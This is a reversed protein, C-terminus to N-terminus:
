PADKKADAKKPKRKGVEAQLADKEEQNLKGDGDKDFRKVLGSVKPQKTPAQPAPVVNGAGPAAGAQGGSVVGGGSRARMRQWAAQAASREANSLKGDRDKDFGKLFDDEKFGGAPIAIGPLGQRRLLEQARIKEEDSLVGDRNVDFKELLQKQAEALAKAADGPGKADEAGAPITFLIFLVAAFTHRM